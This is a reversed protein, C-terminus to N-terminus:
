QIGEELMNYITTKIIEGAAKPAVKGPLSLAQVAKIGLRQAAEFDVGGPASALDIVLANGATKALTHADFIMTPITNFIVDYGSTDSIRKTHVAQYGSQEIWALDEPRRASVTVHAGLGYLMRGLAKGIRGFGTILCRSGCITGPFERMALEIAGEATPVANRVAFEEREFYDYVKIKTWLESTKLLKNAMGCFVKKGEMMLAFDEDLLIKHNSFPANLTRGDATAPLPLIVCQSSQAADEPTTKQVGNFLEIGEMGASFVTYGDTALSEAM